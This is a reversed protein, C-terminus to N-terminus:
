ERVMSRIFLAGNLGDMDNHFYIGLTPYKKIRQKLGDLFSRAERATIEDKPFSIQTEEPTSIAKMVKKPEQLGNKEDKKMEKDAKSEIDEKVNPEIPAVEKDFLFSDLTSTPAEEKPEKKKKRGGKRKQKM